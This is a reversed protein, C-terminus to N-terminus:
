ELLVVHDPQNEGGEKLRAALVKGKDTLEVPQGNGFELLGMKKLGRLNHWYTSEATQTQECYARSLSSATELRISLLCM